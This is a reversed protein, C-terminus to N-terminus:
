KNMFMNNNIITKEPLIKTSNLATVYYFMKSGSFTGTWQTGSFIGTADLTMVGYPDTGSYVAYSVANVVPNWTIIVNTGVISLALNSPAEVPLRYEWNLYPYGSNLSAHMNWYDNTGNVSEGYYDWGAITFTSSTRMQASTLGTASVGSNTSQLSTDKNWFNGTAESYAGSIVTYGFGRNTPATYGTFTVSGTSYNNILKCNDAYPSFASVNANTGSSRTVNALSYCNKLESSAQMVGVFGGVYSTGTVNGASYSESINVSTTIWGAFGGVYSTGTVNGTVSCGNFISSNIGYGVIGGTYGAGTINVNRLQVYYAASGQTFGFLGNYSTARNLYLGSIIYEQGNYVGTFKTTANGIPMWGAGADWTSTASADINSTQLFHYSLFNRVADLQTLNSVLFPEDSTGIGGAFPSPNHTIGEWSLFPYGSNLVANIGWTDETGNVSEGQFDWTANTFTLLTRMRNKTLSTATGATSTQGSTERNWFNGSMTIGTGVGGAFGKNTPDTTGEYHVGGTSYCNTIPSSFLRGCFAGINLTETGGTLRTVEVNAYCNTITSGTFAYGVFGGTWSGTSSKVSGKAFSNKVTGRSYGVFGGTGTGGTIDVNILGIDKIESGANTQGFLGVNATGARSIYLNSVTHGDGNYKGAFNPIPLWGAGSNWGTTASADINATQIFHASLYNRVANLQDLTAIQYPNSATGAGDAFINSTDNITFTTAADMTFTATRPSGATSFVAGDVEVWGLTKPEDAVIDREQEDQDHDRIINEAMNRDTSKALLKDKKEILRRVVDDEGSEDDEIGGKAAVYKWAKLNALVNGNDENSLWSATVQRTGSFANSTEVTWKRLIGPSGYITVQNGSGSYRYVTVTGLNTGTNNITYGIGGFNGTGASTGTGVARATKVTGVVYGTASEGTVTATSGLELTNTGTVVNGQTFTINGTLQFNNTSNNLRLTGGPKSVTLNPFSYLNTITDNASGVFALRSTAVTTLNTSSNKLNGYVGITANGFNVRAGSGITIGSFLLGLMMIIGLTLAKKM